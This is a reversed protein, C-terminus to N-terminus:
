SFSVCEFSSTRDISAIMSFVVVVITTISCVQHFYALAHNRTTNILKGVHYNWHLCSVKTIITTVPVALMTKMGIAMPIVM